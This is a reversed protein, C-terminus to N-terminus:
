RPQLPRRLPSPSASSVAFRRRHHDSGSSSSSPSPPEVPRGADQPKVSLKLVLPRLEQALRSPSPLGTAAAIAFPPSPHTRVRSLSLSPSSLFFRPLTLSYPPRPTTGPCGSSSPLPLCAPSSTAHRPPARAGPVSGERQRPRLRCLLLRAPGGAPQAPWSSSPQVPLLGM